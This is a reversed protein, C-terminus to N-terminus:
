RDGLNNLITLEEQHLAKLAKLNQIQFQQVLLVEEVNVFRNVLAEVEAWVFNNTVFDNVIFDYGKDKMINRRFNGEDFNAYEDGLSNEEDSETPYIIAPLQYLSKSPRILYCFIRSESKLRSWKLLENVVAYIDPFQLNKEPYLESYCKKSELIADNIFIGDIIISSHYLKLTGLYDIRPKASSHIKVISILQEPLSDIDQSFRNQSSIPISVEKQEQWNKKLSELFVKPFTWYFCRDKRGVLVLFTPNPQLLWYNLTTTSIPIRISDGDIEAADTGKCQINFLKGTPHNEEIIECIFDIGLDRSQPVPIVNCFESLVSSLLDAASEGTKQSNTRKPLKAM